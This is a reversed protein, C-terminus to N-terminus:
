VTGRAEMEQHRTILKRILGLRVLPNRFSCEPVDISWDNGEITVTANRQIDTIKNAAMTAYDGKVSRRIVKVLDGNTEYLEGGREAGIIVAWSFSDGTPLKYTVTEAAGHERSLLNLSRGLLTM